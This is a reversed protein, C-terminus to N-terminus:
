LAQDGKVDDSQNCLWFHNIAFEMHHNEHQKSKLSAFVNKDNSNILLASVTVSIIHRWISPLFLTKFGQFLKGCLGYVMFEIDNSKQASSM